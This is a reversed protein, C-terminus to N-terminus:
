VNALLSEDAGVRCAAPLQNFLNHVRRSFAFVRNKDHDLILISTLM